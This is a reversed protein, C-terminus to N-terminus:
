AAALSAIGAAFLAELSLPDVVVAM